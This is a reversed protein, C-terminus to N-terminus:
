GKLWSNKEIKYGFNWKVPEGYYAVEIEEFKDAGLKEIAKQSRFNTAGIHFIVRDVFEFAHNIMLQKLAKNHGKGWFDRGLFTYGIAVENNDENLDYFRSSGVVQNTAQDYVIFAGASEIAGKFFNEFVERQYRNKNPHQEWVLPDSAVEYLREFDEQKLPVLKILDNELHPQLEFNM